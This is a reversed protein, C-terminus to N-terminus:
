VERNRSIKDLYKIYVMYTFIMVMAFEAIPQIMSLYSMEEFIGKIKFCVYAFNVAIMVCCIGLSKKMGLNKKFMILMLLVLTLLHVAFALIEEIMNFSQGDSAQGTYGAILDFISNICLMVKTICYGALSINFFVRSNKNGLRVAYIVMGVLSLISVLASYWILDPEPKMVLYIVGAVILAFSVIAVTFYLEKTKQGKEEVFM